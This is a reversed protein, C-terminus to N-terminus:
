FNFNEKRWGWYKKRIYDLTMLEEVAENALKKDKEEEYIDLLMSWAHNVSGNKNIELLTEKIEKYDNYKKNFKTIYGRLYSYASENNPAKKIKELAYKIEDAIVKENEQDKGEEIKTYNVLFFRYNWVSNNKIDYGLLEEIFEFEGEVNHFRRIMWIRHCWAHFNKADDEFVERLIPKEFSCDNLKDVIM